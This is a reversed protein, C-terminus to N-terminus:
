LGLDPDRSLDIEMYEDEDALYVVVHNGYDRGRLIEPADDFRSWENQSITAEGGLRHLLVAIMQLANDLKLEAESTYLKEAM